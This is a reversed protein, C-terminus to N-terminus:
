SKGKIVANEISASRTIADPVAEIYSQALQDIVQHVNTWHGVKRLVDLLIEMKDEPGVFEVPALESPIGCLLNAM